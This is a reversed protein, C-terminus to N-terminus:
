GKVMQRIGKGKNKGVDFIEKTLSILKSRAITNKPEPLLYFKVKRDM